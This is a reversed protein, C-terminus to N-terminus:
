NHHGHDRYIGPIGPIERCSSAEEEKANAPLFLLRSFITARWVFIVLKLIIVRNRVTNKKRYM